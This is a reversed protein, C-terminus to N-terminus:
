HPNVCGELTQVNIALSAVLGARDFRYMRLLPGCITFGLVFCRSRDASFADRAYVCLQKLADLATQLEAQARRPALVAVLKRAAPAGLSGVDWGRGRGGCYRSTTESQQLNSAHANQHGQSAGALIGTERSGGETACSRSSQFNESMDRPRQRWIGLAEM